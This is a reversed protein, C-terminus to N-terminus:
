LLLVNKNPQAESSKQACSKNDSECKEPLIDRVINNIIIVVGNRGRSRGLEHLMYDNMHPSVIGYDASRMIDRLSSEVEEIIARPNSTGYTIVEGMAANMGAISRIAKFRIM